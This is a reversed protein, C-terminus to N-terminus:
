CTPIRSWRTRRRTARRRTRWSRAMPSFTNNHQNRDLNGSVGECDIKKGAKLLSLCTPYTYCPTGPPNAVMKM